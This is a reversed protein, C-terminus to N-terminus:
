KTLSLSQLVEQILSATLHFYGSFLRQSLDKNELMGIFVLLSTKCYLTNEISPYQVFLLRSFGLFGSLVTEMRTGGGMPATQTSSRDSSRPRSQYLDSLLPDITDSTSLLLAFDQNIVIMDYFFLIAM